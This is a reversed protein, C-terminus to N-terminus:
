SDGDTFFVKGGFGVGGVIGGIGFTFIVVRTRLSPVLISPFDNPASVLQAPSITKLVPM